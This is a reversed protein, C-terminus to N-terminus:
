RPIDTEDELWDTLGLQLWSGILIGILLLGVCTM